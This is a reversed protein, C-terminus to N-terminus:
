KLKAKERRAQAKKVACSRCYSKRNGSDGRRSFQEEEKWSTCTGCFLKGDLVKRRPMRKRLGESKQYYAVLMRTKEKERWAPDERYRAKARVKQCLLCRRVAYGRIVVVRFSGARYHHGRACASRKAYTKTTRLVTM